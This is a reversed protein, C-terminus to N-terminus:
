ARRRSAALLLGGLLLFVAATAAIGTTEAGTSALVQPSAQDAAPAPSAPTAAADLVPMATVAGADAGNMAAAAGDAAGNVAGDPAAQTEDTAPSDGVENDDGTGEAADAADAADEAAREARIQDQIEVPNELASRQVADISGALGGPLETGTAGAADELLGGSRASGVVINNWFALEDPSLNGAEQRAALINIYAGIAQLAIAGLAYESIVLSGIGITGSGISGAPNAYVSGPLSGSSAVSAAASGGSVGVSELPAVSGLVQGVSLATDPIVGSGTARLVDSGGGFGPGGIVIEEPLLGIVNDISGNGTEEPLSGMDQAPAVAPTAAVAVAAAVVVAGVRRTRFGSARTQPTM